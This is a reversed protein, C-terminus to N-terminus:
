PTEHMVGDLDILTQNGEVYARYSSFRYSLGEAKGIRVPNQHIYRVLALLYADRDCLISKYRQEFIHGTRKFTVNYRQTFSQQIGQMIKSLQTDGVEILLHVHNDMIVYAYLM